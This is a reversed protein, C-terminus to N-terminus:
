PLRRFVTQRLVLELVLLALAAMLVLPFREEFTTFNEVEIETRELEDIEAYIAALSENDTARYYRGGTGEAVQRLTSEDIDVQVTIYQRGGM